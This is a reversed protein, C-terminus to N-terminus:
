KHKSGLVPLRFDSGASGTQAAQLPGVPLTAALVVACLVRSPNQCLRQRSM